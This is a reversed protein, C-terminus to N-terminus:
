LSSWAIIVKFTVCSSHTSANNQSLLLLLWSKTRVLIDKVLSIKLVFEFLKLSLPCNQVTTLISSETHKGTLPVLSSHTVALM